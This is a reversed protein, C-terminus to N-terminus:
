DLDDSSVVSSGASKGTKGLYKRVGADRLYKGFAEPNPGIETRVDDPHSDIANFLEQITMDEAGPIASMAWDYAAKAKTRSPALKRQAAPLDDDGMKTVIETPAGPPIASHLINTTPRLWEAFEVMALGNATKAEVGQQLCYEARKQLIWKSSWEGGSALCVHQLLEVAPKKTMMALQNRAMAECRDASDVHWKNWGQVKCAPDIRLRRKAADAYLSDYVNFTGILDGLTCDKTNDVTEVHGAARSKTFKNVERWGYNAMDEIGSHCFTDCVDAYGPGSKADGFIVDIANVYGGITEHLSSVISRIDTLEEELFNYNERILDFSARNFGGQKAECERLTEGIAGAHAFLNVLPQTPIGSKDPSVRMARLKEVMDLIWVIAQRSADIPKGIITARRSTDIKDKPWESNPDTTGVGHGDGQSQWHWLKGVVKGDANGILVEREALTVLASLWVV